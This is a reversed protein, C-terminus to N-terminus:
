PARYVEVTASLTGEARCAKNRGGKTDSQVEWNTLIVDSTTGPAPTWNSLDAFYGTLDLRYKLAKGDHDFGDFFLSIIAGREPHKQIPDIGHLGRSPYPFCLDAEAQGIKQAFFDHLDLPEQVPMHEIRDEYVPMNEREFSGVLDGSFTVTYTATDRNPNADFPQISQGDGSTTFSWVPGKWPSDPNVQNVEDIRW